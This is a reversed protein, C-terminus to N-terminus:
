RVSRAGSPSVIHGVPRAHEQVPIPEDLVEDDYVVAVVRTVDVLGLTRDYFGAGRGLRNGHVDVALAPVFVVDADGVAAPGLRPGRPEPAGRPGADLRDWREYDAWDLRDGEAVPLLVRIGAERLGDLLARTPPETGFSAYAAVTTVGRCLALGHAAIREGARAREADDRQRRARSLRSRLLEKAQM